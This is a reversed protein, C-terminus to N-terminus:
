CLTRWAMERLGSLDIALRKDSVVQLGTQKIHNWLGIKKNRCTGTMICDMASMGSTTQRRAELFHALRRLRYHLVVSENSSQRIGSWWFCRVLIIRPLDPGALCLLRGSQSRFGVKKGSGSVDFITQM